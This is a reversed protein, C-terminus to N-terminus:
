HPSTPGLLELGAVGNGHGLPDVEPTVGRRLRCSKLHPSCLYLPKESVKFAEGEAKVGEVDGNFTQMPKILVLPDLDFASIMM